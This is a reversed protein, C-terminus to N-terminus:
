RHFLEGGQEEQQACSQGAGLKRISTHGGIEGGRVEIAHLVVEVAIQVAPVLDNQVEGGRPATRAPRVVFATHEFLQVVGVAGVAGVLQADEENFAVVAGGLRVQLACPWGGRAVPDGSRM